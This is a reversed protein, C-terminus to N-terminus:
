EGTKGIKDISFINLITDTCSCHPLLCYQDFVICEKGSITVFLQDGYPLVDNYTSLLGDYEVEHYEFYGDISDPSAEESIKNKFVFHGKYLVQFDNEDLQSLFLEAFKLDEKPIKMKNKFGLSKEVIDIEVRRPPLQEKNEDKVETQILDLYVTECACVPNECGSIICEYKEIRDGNRITAIM